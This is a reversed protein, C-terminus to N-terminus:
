GLRGGDALALEGDICWLAYPGRRRKTLPRIGHLPGRPVSEGRVCLTLVWTTRLGCSLDIIVFAYPTGTRNRAYQRLSLPLREISGNAAYASLHRPESFHQRGACHRGEPSNQPTGSRGATAPRFGGAKGIRVVAPQCLATM